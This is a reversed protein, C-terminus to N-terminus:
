CDLNEHTFYFVRILSDFLREFWNSNSIRAPDIQVVHTGYADKISVIGGINSLGIGSTWEATKYISVPSGSPANTQM